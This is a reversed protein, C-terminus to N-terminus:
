RREAMSLVNAVHGNVDEDPEPLALQRLLRSFDMRAASEIKLGPHATLNGYRNKGYPGDKTIQKRAEQARDYAELALQL